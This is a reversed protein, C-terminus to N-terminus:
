LRSLPFTQNCQNWKYLPANKGVIVSGEKYVRYLSVDRGSWEGTFNGRYGYFVPSNPGWLSSAESSLFLRAQAAFLIINLNDNQEYRSWWVLRAMTAEPNNHSWLLRKKKSRTCSHHNLFLKALVCNLITPSISSSFLDIQNVHCNCKALHASFLLLIYLPKTVASATKRM